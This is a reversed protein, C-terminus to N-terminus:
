QGGGNAYPYAENYLDRVHGRTQRWVQRRRPRLDQAGQWAAPGGRPYEYQFQKLWSPLDRYQNEQNISSVREGTTLRHPDEWTSPGGGYGGMGGGFQGNDGAPGPPNHIGDAVGGGGLHGGGGGGGGLQGGMYDSLFSSFAKDGQMKSKALQQELRQDRLDDLRSEIQYPEQATIGRLQDNYGQLADEMHQMLSDQTNRGGVISERQAASQSMGFRSADNTLNNLGATGIASGLNSGAAAEEPSFGQLNAGPFYESLRGMQSTLQDALGGFDPTQVGRIADEAGGYVSQGTQMMRLYDEQAQQLQANITDISGQNQLQVDNVARSNLRANAKQQRNRRKDRAKGKDKAM